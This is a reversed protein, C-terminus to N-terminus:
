LHNDLIFQVLWDTDIPGDVVEYYLSSNQIILNESIIITISNNEEDQLRISFQDIEDTVDIEEPKLKRFHYGELFHLLAEIEDPDDVIWSDSPVGSLAPKSITLSHFPNRWQSLVQTLERETEDQYSQIMMYAGGFMLALLLIARTKM